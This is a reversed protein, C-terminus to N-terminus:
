KKAVFNQLKISQIATNIIPFPFNNKKAYTCTIIIEFINEKRIGHTLIVIYSM